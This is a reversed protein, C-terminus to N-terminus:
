KCKRMDAFLAEFREDRLDEECVTFGLGYETATPKYQSRWWDPPNRAIFAGAELAAPQAAPLPLRSATLAGAVLSFFGRRNV